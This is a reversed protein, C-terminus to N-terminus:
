RESYVVSEVVVFFEQPEEKMTRILPSVKQLPLKLILERWCSRQKM